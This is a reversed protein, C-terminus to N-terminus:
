MLPKIEQLVIELADEAQGRQKERWKLSIVSDGHYSEHPWSTVTDSRFWVQNLGAMMNQASVDEPNLLNM